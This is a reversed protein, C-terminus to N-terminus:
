GVSKLVQDTIDFANADAYVISAKAFVLNIGQKKSITSVAQQIKAMVTQMDKNQAAVIKSQFDSQAKGLDQQEASIKKELADRDSDKMIASDRKYKSIDDQLQKQKANITKETPAFQSQLATRMKAVTQSKQFVTQMDVIGVKMDAAAAVGAIAFFAFASVLVLLKKM